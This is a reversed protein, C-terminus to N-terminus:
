FQKKEKECRNKIVELLRQQFDSLLLNGWASAYYNIRTDLQYSSSLTLLTKNYSIRTLEYSAGIFKFHKGKLVHQDFVTQRVTSPVMKINFSVKKNPNWENVTERFTLGGEFHGVRNAGLGNKDLEAFLPRPIGAYNFVGKSYEGDKIEKVRIVNNWISDASSNIIVANKVEYIGSPTKFQEEITGALFPILLISYVLGRRERFRLILAGFILGGLMAGVIFPLAIIFICLLDEIRTIFCFIFFLLTTFVPTFARYRTSRLQDNNAFFMPTIGIIVPVIWVFTVSFLDTFSFPNSLEGFFFYRLGLGYLAGILVGLYKSTLKKIMVIIAL